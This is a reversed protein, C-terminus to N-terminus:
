LGHNEHWSNGLPSQDLRDNRGAVLKIFLGSDANHHDIDTDSRGSALAPTRQNERPEKTKEYARRVMKIRYLNERKNSFREQM